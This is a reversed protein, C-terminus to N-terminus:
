RPLAQHGLRVEITPHRDVLARLRALSRASAAKDSSFTGPEVGNEWGWATHCADGTLLVPGGPTRALFATSGPTHGPVSLAWFSGDGFVDLVADLAGGPEAVFGWERLAGKGTLAKDVVSSVFFNTFSRERTEGPGAYIPTNGPVDRMGSVHDAHLHTLFVGAPPAPQSGVWTATDVLVVLKDIHMASAILGQFLAHSPDDRQAKEVGTDVLYLGATPHRVAHFAIHIPEPEDKLHAAVAKPHDLNILGARDVEWTAGIVTEVTVSGPQDIVAELAAAPRSVGLSSPEVAHSTPRCGSCLALALALCAWSAARASRLARPARSSSPAHSSRPPSSM